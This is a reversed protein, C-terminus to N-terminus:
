QSTVTPFGVGVIFDSNFLKQVNTLISDQVKQQDANFEEYTFGSVVSTIQSQIQSKWDPMKEGYDKYGDSEKNMSLSIRMTAYHKKGDGSDKLNITMEEIDFAALVTIGIGSLLYALQDIPVSTADSKVSGSNLELNIASCVQTILENAKKTEPLITITLIATLVLNVLVLALVIVTILNKKM